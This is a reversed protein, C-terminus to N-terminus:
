EVKINEEYLSVHNKPEWPRRLFMRITSEGIQKSKIHFVLVMNRKTLDEYSKNRQIMREIKQIEFFDNPELSWKYGSNPDEELEIVFFEDKKVQRFKM